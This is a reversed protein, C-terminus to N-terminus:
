TLAVLDPDSAALRRALTEEYTTILIQDVTGVRAAQVLTRAVAARRRPDLHELPEDFWISSMRAASGALLM